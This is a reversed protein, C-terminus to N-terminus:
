WPGMFISSNPDELSPLKDNNEAEDRQIQM